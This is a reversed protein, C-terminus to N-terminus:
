DCNDAKEYLKKNLLPFTQRPFSKIRLILFLKGTKTAKKGLAKIWEPDSAFAAWASERHAMDRFEVLWILQNNTSSIVPTFFGVPKIDHKKFLALTYDRFRNLLDEM